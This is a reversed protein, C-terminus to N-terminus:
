PSIAASNLTLRETTNLDTCCTRAHTDGHDNTKHQTGDIEGPKVDEPEHDGVESRASRSTAQM